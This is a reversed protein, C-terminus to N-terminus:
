REVEAHAMGEEDEPQHRDAGQGGKMTSEESLRLGTMHVCVGERVKRTWDELVIGTMEQQGVIAVPAGVGRGIEGTRM